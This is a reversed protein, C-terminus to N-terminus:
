LAHADPRWQHESVTRQPRAPSSYTCIMFGVAPGYDAVAFRVCMQVIQQSYSVGLLVTESSTSLVCVCSFKGGDSTQNQRDSSYTPEPLSFVHNKM